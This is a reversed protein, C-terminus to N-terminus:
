WTLTVGNTFNTQPTGGVDRHWAQFFWDSGPLVGGAPDLDNPDPSYEFRGVDGTSFVQTGVRLRPTGLCLRGVAGTLVQPTM